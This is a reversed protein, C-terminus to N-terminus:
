RANFLGSYHVDLAEAWPTSDRRPVPSAAPCKSSRAPPRVSSRSRQAQRLQLLTQLLSLIRVDDVGTHPNRWLEFILEVRPPTDDNRGDLTWHLGLLASLGALNTNHGALLVLREDVSGIAGAVQKGTEAQQLTDFIHELLNSAEAQAWCPTRHMLDFCASHLSLLPRLSAEGIRGWGVERPPKNDAYELLLNKPCRLHPQSRPPM